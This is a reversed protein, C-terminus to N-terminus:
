TLKLIGDIGDDGSEDVSDGPVGDRGGGSASPSDSEPTSDAEGADKDTSPPIPFSDALSYDAFLKALNGFANDLDKVAANKLEVIREASEDPTEKPEDEVFQNEHAVVTAYMAKVMDACIYLQGFGRINRGLDVYPGKKAGAANSVVCAGPSLVPQDVIHFRDEAPM